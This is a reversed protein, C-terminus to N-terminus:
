SRSNVQLLHKRKLSEIKELADQAIGVSLGQTPVYVRLMGKGNKALLDLVEQEDFDISMEFTNDAVSKIGGYTRRPKGGKLHKAYNRILSKPKSPKQAHLAADTLIIDIADESPLYGGAPVIRKRWLLTTSSM